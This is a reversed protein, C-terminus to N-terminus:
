LAKVFAMILIPMMTVFNNVFHVAISDQLNGTHKYVYALFMGMSMYVLYSLGDSLNTPIKGMHPFAFLIGSLIISAWWWSKRFFYNIVLGRFVIEEVVPALFIAYIMMAIMVLNIHATLSQIAAQNETTMDGTLTLRLFNVVMEIGLMAFFLGIIYWIHQWHRVNIRHFVPATTTRRLLRYAYYGIALYSLFLMMIFLIQLWVSKQMAAIQLFAPSLMLLFAVVIFNVIRQWLYKPTPQTTLNLLNSKRIWINKERM